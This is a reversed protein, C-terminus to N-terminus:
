LPNCVSPINLFFISTIDLGPPSYFGTVWEYIIQIFIPIYSVHASIVFLSFRKLLKWKRKAIKTDDLGQTIYVYFRFIQIYNMAIFGMMLSLIGSGIYTPITDPKPVCYIGSSTLMSKGPVISILLGYLFCFIGIGIFIPILPLKRKTTLTVRVRLHVSIVDLTGLSFMALGLQLFSAIQCLVYGGVFQQKALCVFYLGSIWFSFTMDATALISVLAGAEKSEVIKKRESSHLVILTVL